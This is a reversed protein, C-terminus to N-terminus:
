GIAVAAIKKAMASATVVEFQTVPDQPDDLQSRVIEAVRGVARAFVEPAVPVGDILVREHWGIVHPSLYTGVRRGTGRLLADAMRVTSSKGNSGVVHIAPAHRHPNDLLALLSRMRHLGFRMGFVDLSAIYRAAADPTM